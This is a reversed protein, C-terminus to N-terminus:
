IRFTLVAETGQGPSSNLEIDGNHLLAIERVISLGLGSSKKGGSPRPLSYFREFVRDRAYEPIGSGNDKIAVTIATGTQVLRIVIKGGEESFEVANRLLNDLAERILFREGRFIIKDDPMELEFELAPYRERYDSVLESVIDNLKLIGSHEASKRNELMSLYLMRDVIRAMRESERSINSLFRVRNEPTINEDELLEIAGKIGSLPSKLEHTLGEVYQEIYKKGELADRMEEFALALNRTEGRGVPPLPVRKGQKVERVYNTLRFIPMSIWAAVLVALLLAFGGIRLAYAIIKRKGDNIFLNIKGIPRYVTLVGAIKGNRMIPAAVHLVSSSPEDKNVRTSRAGYEGRLTLIVDRWRSFDMGEYRGSSDYIVTGNTDTVYVNLAVEDKKLKYVMAQLKRKHARSLGDRFNGAALKEPEKVEDDSSLMAALINATDVMTVEMCELYSKRVDSILWQSFSYICAAFLVLFALLIKIRISM